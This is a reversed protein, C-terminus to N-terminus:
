LSVEVILDHRAIGTLLKGQTTKVKVPQGSLASSMATGETMIQFGQGKLAIKVIDGNNVSPKTKVMDMRIPTGAAIMRNAQKGGLMGADAWQVTIPFRSVELEAMQVNNDSIDEQFQIIGASVAVPMFVKAEVAVWSVQEGCKAQVLTRAWLRGGKPLLYQPNDCAPSGYLRDNAEQPVLRLEVRAQKPLNSSEVMQRWPAKDALNDAACAIGMTLSVSLGAFLLRSAIRCITQVPLTM